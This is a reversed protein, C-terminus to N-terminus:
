NLFIFSNPKKKPINMTIVKNKAFCYPCHQVQAEIAEACNWCGIKDKEIDNNNAEDDSVVITQFFSADITCVACQNQTSSDVIAGCNRCELKLM